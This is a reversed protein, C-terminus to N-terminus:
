AADGNVWSKIINAVAVPNERTLVRADELRLQEETPAAPAANRTPPPLAPRQPVEAELANLNGRATSPATSALNRMAPRVLGLLVLAGFLFLGVPWALSRALDLTEPQRWVPTQEVPVSEVQFRRM